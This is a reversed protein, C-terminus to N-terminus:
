VLIDFQGLLGRRRSGPRRHLSQGCLSDVKVRRGESREHGLNRWAQLVLGLRQHFLRTDVLPLIACHGDAFRALIATALLNPLTNAINDSILFETGYGYYKHLTEVAVVGRYILALTLEVGAYGDEVLAHFVPRAAVPLGGVKLTEKFLDTALPAGM